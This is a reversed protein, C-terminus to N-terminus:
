KRMLMTGFATLDAAVETFVDKVADRDWYFQPSSSYDRDANEQETCNAEM